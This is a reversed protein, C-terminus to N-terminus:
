APVLLAYDVDAGALKRAMEPGTGAALTRVQRGDIHGMFGYALPHLAGIAGAKALEQLREVPLVLNLDEEADRHDYYDHTIRLSTRSAATPIERYSPDGDPDEMDFPEQTELHVGGTTVLALTAERLPKRPVAWPIAGGTASLTKGWRETLGPFASFIRGLLRNKRRQLSYM